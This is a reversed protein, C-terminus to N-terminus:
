KNVAGLGHSAVHYTSTRAPGQVQTSASLTPATIVPPTSYPVNAIAVVLSLADGDAPSTINLNNSGNSLLSTIDFSKIDWLSGTVGSPNGAYNPGTDGQFLPGAAAITTGNVILDGDPYSQGDSVILDLSAGGTGGYPVGSITENWASDADFTSAVNSDNGNWAVATRDNASNGDDYFIVLAVGNIDADAKVFNSLNYTGDGGVLWTVDARYAQSNQFDWNNDSAFGINTGTVPSGNFTVSANATSSSSDTPGHWYLFAHRVQGTIGTVSISGTGNGRMGGAGFEAVDTQALSVNTPSVAIQPAVTCDDGSCTTKGDVSQGSGSSNTGNAEQNLTCNGATACDGEVTNDQTGGEDSKQASTQTVNFTDAANNGQFSPGDGKRLPGIQKQTLGNPFTDTQTASLCANLDTQFTGTAVTGTKQAHECQVEDQTPTISSPATSFQKFTAEIGGDSKGQKQTVPGNTSFTTSSLGGSALALQKSVQSSTITNTGGAVNIYGARQNQSISLTLNPGSVPDNPDDQFQTIPGTGYATSSLAQNQMIASGSCSGGNAPTAGEAASNGGFSNQVISISQHGRTTITIPQGKKASLNTSSDITVDQTVCAQNKNSAGTATQTILASYSATQTLGTSKAAKQYVIAVNDASANSQTISCSGTIGTGNKVCKAINTALPSKSIQLVACRRTACAFLNKGHAKAVQVVTRQTDACSWRKGPCNPGAYNRLGRQIVVGKPNVHISRLYHVVAAKTSVDIRATKPAKAAGAGSAAVLAVGALLAACLSITGKIHKAQM